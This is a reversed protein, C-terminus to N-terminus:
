RAVTCSLTLPLTSPTLVWLRWAPACMGSSLRPRPSLVSPLPTEETRLGKRENRSTNWVFWDGVDADLVLALRELTSLAVQIAEDRWIAYLGQRAVGMARALQPVNPYGRAPWRRLTSDLWILLVTVLPGTFHTCDV